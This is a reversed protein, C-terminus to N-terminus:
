RLQSVKGQMGVAVDIEFEFGKLGRAGELGTADAVEQGAGDVGVPGVFGVVVVAGTSAIGAQGASSGGVRKIAGGGDDDRDAGGREHELLESVQAGVGARVALVPALGVGKQAGFQKSMIVVAYIDRGKVM